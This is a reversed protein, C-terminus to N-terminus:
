VKWDITHGSSPLLHRIFHLGQYSWSPGSHSSSCATSSIQRSPHAMLIQNHFLKFLGPYYMGGPAYLAVLLCLPALPDTQHQFSRLGSRLPSLRPATPSPSGCSYTNGAPCELPDPNNNLAEAIEEDRSGIFLASLPWHYILEPVKQFTPCKLHTSVISLMWRPIKQYSHIISAPLSNRGSTRALTWSSFM